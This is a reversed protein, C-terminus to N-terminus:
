ELASTALDFYDLVEDTLDRDATERHFLVRLGRTLQRWVSMGRRYRPKM